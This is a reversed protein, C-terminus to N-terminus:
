DTARAAARLVASFKRFVTDSVVCVASGEGIETTQQREMHDFTTALDLALTRLRLHGARIPGENKELIMDAVERKSEPDFHYLEDELDVYDIPRFRGM